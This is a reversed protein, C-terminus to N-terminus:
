PVSYTKRKQLLSRPIAAGQDLCCHSATCSEPWKLWTRSSRPSARAVTGARATGWGVRERSQLWTVRTSPLTEAQLWCDGGLWHCRPQRAATTSNCIQVCVPGFTTVSGTPIHDSGASCASRGEKDRLRNGLSRAQRPSDSASVEELSRGWGFPTSKVLANPAGSLRKQFSM